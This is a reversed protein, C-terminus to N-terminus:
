SWSTPAGPVPSPSAMTRSYRCSIPPSTSTLLRAPKPDSNLQADGDLGGLRLVEGRGVLGLSDRRQCRSLRFPPYQYDFVLREVPLQESPQEFLDTEDHGKGLVAGLAQFDERTGAM